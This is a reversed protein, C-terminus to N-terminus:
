GQKIIPQLKKKINFLKWKVTGIPMNLASALEDYSLGEIYRLVVLERDNSDLYSLWQEFQLNNEQSTKSHNVIDDTIPLGEAPRRSQTRWHMLMANRAIAFIWGEFKHDDRVEDAKQYVTLMVNQALDEAVGEDAKLM